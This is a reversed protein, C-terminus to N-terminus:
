KVKNDHVVFLILFNLSTAKKPMLLIHLTFPYMIQIYKDDLIASGWSGYRDTVPIIRYLDYWVMNTDTGVKHFWSFFGERGHSRQEVQVPDSNSWVPHFM